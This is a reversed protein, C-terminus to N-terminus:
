DVILEMAVTMGVLCWGLQSVEEDGLM